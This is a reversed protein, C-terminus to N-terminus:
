RAEECRVLYEKPIFPDLPQKPGDPTPKEVAWAPDGGLDVRFDGNEAYAGWFTMARTVDVLRHLKHDVRVFIDVGSCFLPVRNAARGGSGATGHGLGGSADDLTGEHLWGVLTVSSSGSQADISVLATTKWMGLVGVGMGAPGIIEAVPPGDPTLSLGVVKGPASLTAYSGDFKGVSSEPENASVFACPIRYDDRLPTKLRLNPPLQVDPAFFAGKVSTTTAIRTRQIQLWEGRVIPGVAYLSLEPLNLEANVHASETTFAARALLRGEEAILRGDRVRGLTIMDAFPRARFFLLGRYSFNEGMDFGCGAAREDLDRPEEYERTFDVEHSRLANARVEERRLESTGVTDASTASSTTEPPAAPRAGHCAGLTSLATVLVLARNM